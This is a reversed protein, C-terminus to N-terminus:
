ERICYLNVYKATEIRSDVPKLGRNVEDIMFITFDLRRLEALLSPASEGAFRLSAPNCEVFLKVSRGARALIEGMGRLAHVEGGEIDMKVVDIQLGRDLFDDLVVSNVATTEHGGGAPILSSRSQDGGHLFFPQVGAEDSVAWPLCTVRSDIQNLRLNEGLLEYNRPDPEFAYVKGQAGVRRAALLTYWGVFAGIDLVVMGPRIVGSFLRAMLSEIEDRRLAQLYHRHELSATVAFGEVRVSLRNGILPKLLNKGAPPLGALGWRRCVGAFRDLKELLAMPDMM